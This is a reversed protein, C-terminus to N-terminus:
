KRRSGRAKASKPAKVKARTAKTKRPRTVLKTAKAVPVKKTKGVAKPAGKPKRTASSNSKRHSATVAPASSQAGEDQVAGSAPNPDEFGNLVAAMRPPVGRKKVFTAPQELGLFIRVESASKCIRAREGIAVVPGDLLSPHEHVATWYEMEGIFRDDLQLELFLPAYRRVLSQGQGSIQVSLRKLQDVKLAVSIYDHLQLEHGADAIAALIDAVAPSSLDCYIKVAKSAAISSDPADLLIVKTAEPGKGKFEALFSVRQGAKLTRAEVGKLVSTHIYVDRSGDDPSIFGFGKASSFFKITGNLM